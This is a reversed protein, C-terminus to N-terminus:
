WVGGLYDDVDVFVSESPGSEIAEDTTSNGSTLNLVEVPVSIDNEPAPSIEEQFSNSENEAPNQGVSGEGSFEAEASENSDVYSSDGVAGLFEDVDVFSSSENLATSENESLAGSGNVMDDVQVFCGGDPGACAEATGSENGFFTDNGSLGAMTSLMLFAPALFLVSFHRSESTSM